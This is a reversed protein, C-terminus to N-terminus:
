SEKGNHLAIIDLLSVSGFLFLRLHSSDGLYRRPDSSQSRALHLYAICCLNVYRQDLLSPIHRLFDELSATLSM